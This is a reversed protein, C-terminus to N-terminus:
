ARVEVITGKFVELAKQILPDNKFTEKNFPIAASKKEAGSAAAAGPKRTGAASAAQPEAASAASATSPRRLRGVPAEAKM